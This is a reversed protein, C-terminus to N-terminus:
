PSGLVTFGAGIVDDESDYGGYTQYQYARLDFNSAMNWNPTPAKFPASKM